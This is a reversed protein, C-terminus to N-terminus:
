SWLTEINKAVDTMTKLVPAAKTTAEWLAKMTTTSPSETVSLEVLENFYDAAEANSTEEIIGIIKKFAEARDPKRYQEQKIINLTGSGILVAANKGSIIIDGTRYGQEELHSMSDLVESIRTKVIQKASILKVSFDYLFSEEDERNSQGDASLGYLVFVAASVCSSLWLCDKLNFTEGGSIFYAWYLFFVSCVSCM